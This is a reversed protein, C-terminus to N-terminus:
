VVEQPASRPLFQLGYFHGARNRVLASMGLSAGSDPDTLQIEVRDGIDLEVAAYLALGNESLDTGRGLVVQLSDPKSVWVETPVNVHLRHTSRREYECLNGRKAPM